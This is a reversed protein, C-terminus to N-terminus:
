DAECPRGDGHRGGLKVVPVAAAQAKSVMDATGKGGPFAIVMDPKRRLMEANRYPGAQKGFRKWNAPVSEIEIQRSKAWKEAFRDAGYSAGHILLTFHHREHMTDLERELLEYDDFTRGGCVIVRM